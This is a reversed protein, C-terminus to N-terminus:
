EDAEGETMPIATQGKPVSQARGGKKRRNKLHENVLAWHADIDVQTKLGLRVTMWERMDPLREPFWGRATIKGDIGRTISDPEIFGEPPEKCWNHVSGATVGLYLAVGTASIYETAM